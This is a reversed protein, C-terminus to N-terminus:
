YYLGTARGRHPAPLLRPGGSGLSLVPVRTDAKELRAPPQPPHHSNFETGGDERERGLGCLTPPSTAQSSRTPNLGQTLPDLLPRLVSSRLLGKLLSQLCHELDKRAFQFLPGTPGAQVM